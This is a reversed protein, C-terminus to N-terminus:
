GANDLALLYQLIAHCTDYVFLAEQRSITPPIPYAHRVAPSQSSFGWLDEFSGLLPPPVKGTSRLLKIGDGLTGKDTGTVIKVMAEVSLVAEKAANPLDPPEARIFDTAKTWSYSVAAYKGDALGEPLSIRVKAAALRRLSILYELTDKSRNWGGELSGSLLGGGLVQRLIGHLDNNDQVLEGRILHEVDACLDTDWSLGAAQVATEVV